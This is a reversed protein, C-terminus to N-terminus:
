VFGQGTTMRYRFTRGFHCYSNMIMWKTKNTCNQHHKNLTNEIIKNKLYNPGINENFRYNSSWHNVLTFINLVVSWSRKAFALPHKRIQWIKWKVTVKEWAAFFKFIKSIQGTKPKIKVKLKVLPWVFSVQFCIIISIGLVIGHSYTQKM